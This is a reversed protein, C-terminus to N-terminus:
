AKRQRAEIGPYLSPVPDSIFIEKTAIDMM